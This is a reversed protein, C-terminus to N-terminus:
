DDEDLSPAPPTSSSAASPAESDGVLGLQRLVWSAEAVVEGDVDGDMEAEMGTGAALPREPEPSSLQMMQGFLERLAAMDSRVADEHYAAGFGDVLWPHGQRDVVLCDILTRGEALAAGGDSHEGGWVCKRRHLALMMEGVRTALRRLTESRGIVRRLPMGDVYEYLGGMIYTRRTDLDVPWSTSKDADDYIYALLPPVRIAAMSEEGACAALTLSQRVILQKQAPCEWRAAGHVKKNRSAIIYYVDGEEMGKLQVAGYVYLDMVDTTPNMLVDRASYFSAGAGVHEDALEREEEDQDDYYVAGPTLPLLRLEVRGRHNQALDCFRMGDHFYVQLYDCDDPDPLPDCYDLLLPKHLSALLSRIRAPVEDPGVDTASVTSIALHMLENCTERYRAHRYDSRVPYVSLSFLKTNLEFIIDAGNGVLRTSHIFIRQTLGFGNRLPSVSLSRPPSDLDDM